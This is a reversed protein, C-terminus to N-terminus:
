KKVKFEVRWVWPNSNWSYGRKANIEDWLDKFNTKASYCGTYDDPNETCLGPGYAACGEAKADEESIDQLREIGIDTMELTLRSVRKPMFLPSRWKGMKEAGYFGVTEKDAKYWVPDEDKNYPFTILSPKLHDFEKEAAWGEKVWLNDGVKGYPCKVPGRLIHDRQWGQGEWFYWDDGDLFPYSLGNHKLKVVRRTQTKVGSLIKSVSDGTMIIPKSKM